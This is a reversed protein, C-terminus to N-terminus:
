RSGLADARAVPGGVNWVQVFPHDALDPRFSALFPAKVDQWKVRGTRICGDLVQVTKCLSCLKAFLPPLLRGQPLCDKFEAHGRLAAMVIEFVDAQMEFAHDTLEAAPHLTTFHYDGLWVMCQECFLSLRCVHRLLVYYEVNGYDVIRGKIVDAGDASVIKWHDKWAVGSYQSHQLQVFRGFIEEFHPLLCRVDDEFRGMLVRLNGHFVRADDPARNGLKKKSLVAAAFSPLSVPM